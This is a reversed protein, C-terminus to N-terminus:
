CDEPDTPEGDAALARGEEVTIGMAACDAAFAGSEIYGELSQVPEAVDEERPWETEPQDALRIAMLEAQMNHSIGRRNFYADDRLALVCTPCLRCPTWGPQFDDPNLSTVGIMPGRTEYLAVADAPTRHGCSSCIRVVANLARLHFRAEQRAPEDGIFGRGFRRVMRQEVKVGHAERLRLFGSWTGANPGWLKAAGEALTPDMKITQM